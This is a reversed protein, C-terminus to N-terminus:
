GNQMTVPILIDFSNKLADADIRVENFLRNRHTFESSIKRIKGYNIYENEFTNEARFNAIGVSKIKYSLQLRAHDTIRKEKPLIFESHKGTFILPKLHLYLSKERSIWLKFENKCSICSYKGNWYNGKKRGDKKRLWNYNCKLWCKIGSNQVKQSIFSSFEASLWERGDKDEKVFDEPNKNELEILIDSVQKKDNKKIESRLNFRETVLTKFADKDRKWLTQIFMSDTFSFEGFFEISLRGWINNEGRASGIMEDPSIKNTILFKFTIDVLRPLNIKRIIPGM